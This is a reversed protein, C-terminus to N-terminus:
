LRMLWLNATFSNQDNVFFVYNVWMWRRQRHNTQIKFLTQDLPHIVFWLWLWQPNLWDWILYAGGKARWMSGTSGMNPLGHGYKRIHANTPLYLGAWVFVASQTYSDISLSLFSTFAPNPAIFKLILTKPGLLCTPFNVLQWIHVM